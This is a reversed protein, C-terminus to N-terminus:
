RLETIRTLKTESAQRFKVSWELSQLNLSLNFIFKLLELLQNDNEGIPFLLINYSAKRFDQGEFIKILTIITKIFTIFSVLKILRILRIPRIILVM